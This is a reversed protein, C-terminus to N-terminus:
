AHCFQAAVLRGLGDSAWNISHTEWQWQFGRRMVLDYMMPSAVVAVPNINLPWEDGESDGAFILTAIGLLTGKPLYQNVGRWTARGDDMQFIAIDFPYINDRATYTSTIDEEMQFWPLQNIQINQTNM